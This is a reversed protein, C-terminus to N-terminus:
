GVRCDPHKASYPVNQKTLIPNLGMPYPHMFFALLLIILPQCIFVASVFTIFDTVAKKYFSLSDDQDSLKFNLVVYVYVVLCVNVKVLDIVM